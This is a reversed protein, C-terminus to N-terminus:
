ILPSGSDRVPTRSNGNYGALQQIMEPTQRGRFFQPRQVVSGQQDAEDTLAVVASERRYDGPMSWHDITDAATQEAVIVRGLVSELSGKQHQCTLGTRQATTVRQGSPEVADGDANREVGPSSGLAVGDALFREGGFLCEIRTGVRKGM